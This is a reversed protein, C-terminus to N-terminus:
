MPAHFDQAHIPTERQVVLKEPLKRQKASLESPMVFEDRLVSLGASATVLGLFLWTVKTHELNLSLNGVTWITLLTLWFRADWKPQQKAYCFSLVLIIAFLAFGIIGVQVLISLFVNHAGLRSDPTAIATTFTGSGTGFIPHEAFAVIGQRWIELRGTLDGETIAVGTSLVRDLGAQPVLPFLVLFIGVVAAFILIRQFFKLRRVSALILWFVPLSAVAAGRSASILIAVVAAPVYAYNVLKMLQTMRSKSGSVALHWAVPIGLALTLALVAPNSDTAAYRLYAFQEGAMYNSILSGISVYAGLVYAQLGAKLRSPTTYLDWLMMFMVIMQLYTRIYFLTGEIDVSWFISLVNWLFFLYIMLHILPLKRLRGTVVVTAVWFLMAGLGLGMSVMPGVDTYIVGESPIKFIVVLSLWFAITRLVSKESALEGSSRSSYGITFPPKM